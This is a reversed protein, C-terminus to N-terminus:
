CTQILYMCTSAMVSLATESLLLTADGGERVLLDYEGLCEKGFCTPWIIVTM